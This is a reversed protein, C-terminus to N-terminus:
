PLGWGSRKVLITGRSLRAIVRNRLAEFDYGCGLGIKAALSLRGDLCYVSMRGVAMLSGPWGHRLDPPSSTFGGAYGAELAADEVREDCKGFPYAITEVPRGTHDELMRKSARLEERLAVDGLATLDRHTLTHSGFEIGRGALEEVQAWSLHRARRLSLRVDWTNTSGIAAVVPFVTATTRRAELEPFADTYVSEYGDDFTVAIPGAAVSSSAASGDASEVVGDAGEAPAGETLVAEAVAGWATTLERGTSVLFDLHSALRRRGVTTIGLERQSGIKHYTLISAM